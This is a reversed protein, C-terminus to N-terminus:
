GKGCKVFHLTEEASVGGEGKEHIHSNSGPAAKISGVGLIKFPNPPKRERNMGGM